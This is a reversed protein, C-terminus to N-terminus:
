KSKKRIEGKFDFEFGKPALNGNKDIDNFDLNRFKELEKVAEKGILSAFGDQIARVKRFCSMARHNYDDAKDGEESEMYLYHLTRGKEVSYMYDLFDERIKQMMKEDYRYEGSLKMFWKSMLNKYMYIDNGSLSDPLYTQEFKEEFNNQAEHIDDESIIRETNLIKEGQLHNTNKHNNKTKNVILWVAIIIVVAWFFM